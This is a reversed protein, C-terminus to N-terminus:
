KIILRFLELMLALGMSGVTLLLGAAALLYKVNHHASEALTFLWIAIALLILLSILWNAHHRLLDATIFHPLPDLDANQAMEAWAENLSLGFNYGATHRHNRESCQAAQLSPDRLAYLAVQRESPPEIVQTPAATPLLYRRHFYGAYLEAMDGYHNSEQRLALGEAAPATESELWLSNALQGYHLYATYNRLYDFANIKNLICTEEARITASLGAFDSDDIEQGLFAVRGAFVAGIVSVLAILIAVATKFHSSTAPPAAPSAAPRPQRRHGWWLLLVATAHGAAVVTVALLILLLHIFGFSTTAM